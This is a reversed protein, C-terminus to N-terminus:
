KRKGIRKILPSLLMAAVSLAMLIYITYIWMDTMKLRATVNDPGEYGLINLPTGDGISYAIVLLIAFVILLVM